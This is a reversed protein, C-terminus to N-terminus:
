GLRTTHRSSRRRSSPRKLGTLKCRLAQWFFDIERGYEKGPAIVRGGSARTLDYEAIEQPLLNWDGGVLWAGHRLGHIFKFLEQLVETNGALGEGVVGYVSISVM